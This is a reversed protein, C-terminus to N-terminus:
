RTVEASVILNGQLLRTVTGAGDVVELDYVGSVPSLASTLTDSMSLTITGAAGGLAIGGGASTLTIFPIAVDISTRAMMRALFGTLNILMNNQDKWTFQQNFTTGQYITIDYNGPTITM